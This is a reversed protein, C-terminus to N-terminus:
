NSAERSITFIRSWILKRAMAGMAAGKVPGSAETRAEKSKCSEEADNRRAFASESFTSHRIRKVADLQLRELCSVVLYTTVATGAADAVSLKLVKNHLCKSPSTKIVKQACKCPAM